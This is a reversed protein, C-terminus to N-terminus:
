TNDKKSLFSEIAACIQEDSKNQTDSMILNSIYNMGKEPVYYEVMLVPNEDQTIYSNVFNDWSTIFNGRYFIGTANIEVIAKKKIGKGFFLLSPILTLFVITQFNKVPFNECFYATVLAAFFMVLLLFSLLFDMLVSEKVILSTDSAVAEKQM